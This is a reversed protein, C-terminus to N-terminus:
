NRKVREELSCLRGHFDKMEKDISRMIDIVDRRFEKLDNDHKRSDSRAEAKQWLWLGFVGIFFIAFQAWDMM